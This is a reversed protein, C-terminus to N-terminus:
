KLADRLAQATQAADESMVLMVEGGPLTEVIANQAIEYQDQLYQEFARRQAAVYSEVAAQVDETKGEAPVFIGVAYARVNMLSMSLAYESLMDEELGLTSLMMPAMSAADEESVDYPNLGLSVAGGTKWTYVADNENEESSRADVIAQVYDKPQATSSPGASCDAFMCVAPLGGTQFLQQPSPFPASRFAPYRSIRNVTGGEEDVAIFLPVTAAAQLSQIREAAQQPTRGEFDESFLIYGGLHYEAAKQAADGAPCRALFMQGVKEELTNGAILRQPADQVTSKGPQPQAASETCASSSQTFPGSQAGKGQRVPAFLMWAAAGCLVLVALIAATACGRHRM